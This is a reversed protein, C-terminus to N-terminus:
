THVDALTVQNTQLAHSNVSVMTVVRHTIEVTKKKWHVSLQTSFDLVYWYAANSHIPERKSEM